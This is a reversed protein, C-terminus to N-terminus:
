PLYLKLIFIIKFNWLNLELKLQLIFTKWNMAFNFCCPFITELDLLWIESVKFTKWKIKIFRQNWIWIDIETDPDMYIGPDPDLFFNTSGSGSFFGQIRILIYIGPDSDKYLDSSGSVHIRGRGSEWGYMCICKLGEILIWIYIGVDPDMNYDRSGSGDLIEPDPFMYIDTSWHIFLDRSGSGFVFRQIRIWTYIGPDPDM